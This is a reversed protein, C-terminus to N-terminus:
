ARYSLSLNGKTVTYHTLTPDQALAQILSVIPSSGLTYTTSIPRSAQLARYEAPPYFISLLVDDDSAATGMSERAKKVRGPLRAGPRETMDDFARDLRDLIHAAVPAALEGYYGQCYRKVEDPITRYREGQVVNLVAQTVVFQAFPSVLIPYGLDERVRATEELIEPLRHQLGMPALQAELNSKQGGPVQHQYHFPDYEAPQGLPRNEWTALASFYDAMVALDDPPVSVSRGWSEAHRVVFETAPLSAGYALPRSATHVVDVGLRIAEQYVLPCLGTLCHSHLQLPIPGLAKQLAPVLTRIRDPTLLGAPDKLFIADVGLRVLESAKQAFYADTHVPSLTYVVGGIVYLGVERGVKISVELNRTDNLADYTMLTRIGNAAIRRVTLDVVDDPFLEFTFLSSGRIMVNLPTRVIAQSLIRMREWPDERLYRVCVDFVAGGVLDIAWFGMQDMHPAMPLMMATTMRTAWLSQHADRLTVDIIQLPKM